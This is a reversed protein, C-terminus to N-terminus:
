YLWSPPRHGGPPGGRLGSRLSGESRSRRAFRASRAVLALPASAVRPSGRLTSVIQINVWFQESPPRLGEPPSGHLGSRLSGERSVPSRLSATSRSPSRLPPWGTPEWAFYFWILNKFWFQESPPRLGGPPSERLGSRLSGERSVPSRLSATSRSPSRLPPWGVPEWAFNYSRLIWSCGRLFIV